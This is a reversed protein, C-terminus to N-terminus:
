DTVVTYTKYMDSGFHLDVICDIIYHIKMSFLPTVMIALLLNEIATEDQIVSCLYMNQPMKM